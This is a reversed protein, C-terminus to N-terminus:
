AVVIILLWCMLSEGIGRLDIINSPDNHGRVRVRIEDILHRAVQYEHGLADSRSDVYCPAYQSCVMPCIYEMKDTMEILLVYTM